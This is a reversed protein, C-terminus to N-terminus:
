STVEFRFGLSRNASSHNRGGSKFRRLKPSKAGRYQPNLTANSNEEPLHRDETTLDSGRFTHKGFRESASSAPQPLHNHAISVEDSRCDKLGLSGGALIPGGMGRRLGVRSVLKLRRPMRHGRSAGQCATDENRVRSDKWGSIRRPIHPAGQMLRSRRRPTSYKWASTRHPTRHGGSSLRVRLLIQWGQRMCGLCRASFIRVELLRAFVGESSPFRPPM